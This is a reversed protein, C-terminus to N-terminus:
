QGHGRPMWPPLRPGEAKDRSPKVLRLRMSLNSMMAVEAKLFGQVDKWAVFDLGRPKNDAPNIEDAERMIRRIEMVLMDHRVICSCLSELLHAQQMGILGPQAAALIKRWVLAEREPMDGPTPLDTIPPEKGESRGSQKM